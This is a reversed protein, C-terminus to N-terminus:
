PMALCIKTIMTLGIESKLHEMMTNLFLSSERRHVQAKETTTITGFIMIDAGIIFGAIRGPIPTMCGISKIQIAGPTTIKTTM